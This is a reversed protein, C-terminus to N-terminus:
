HLYVTLQLRRRLAIPLFINIILPGTWWGSTQHVSTGITERLRERVLDHCAHLLALHFRLINWTTHRRARPRSDVTRGDQLQVNAYRWHLHQRLM